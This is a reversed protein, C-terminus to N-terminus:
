VGDVPYPRYKTTCLGRLGFDAEDKRLDHISFVPEGVDQLKPSM